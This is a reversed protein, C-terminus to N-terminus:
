HSVTYDWEERPNELAVVVKDFPSMNTNQHVVNCALLVKNSFAAAPGPVLMKSILFLINKRSLQFSGQKQMMRKMWSSSCMTAM